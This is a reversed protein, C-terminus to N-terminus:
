TGDEPEPEASPAAAGGSPDADVLLEVDEVLWGGDIRELTVAAYRLHVEPDTVETTTVRQVVVALTQARDGDLRQVYVDRVEGESRAGLEELGRLDETSGFLEDVDRAFDETGRSRLEDRTATMGAAADWSTLTTVFGSTAAAVDERTRELGAVEQWRWTSVVAVAVALVVLIWPLLQRVSTRSRPTAEADRPQPTTGTPDDAEPTLGDADGVDTGTDTTV